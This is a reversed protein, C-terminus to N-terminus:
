SEKVTVKMQTFKEVGPIMKGQEWLEACAKVGPRRQLLHLYRNELIYEYFMDWNEVHPVTQPKITFASSKGGGKELKQADAVVMLEECLVKKEKEAIEVLDNLHKIEKQKALIEDSILGLTRKKAAAM